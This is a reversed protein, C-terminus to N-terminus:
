LLDFDGKAPADPIDLNAFIDDLENAEDIDDEQNTQSFNEEELDFM